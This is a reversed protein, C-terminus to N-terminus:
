DEYDIDIRISGKVKTEKLFNKYIGQDKMAQIDVEKKTYGLTKYIHVPGQFIEEEGTTDFYERAKSKITDRIVKARKEYEDFKVIFDLDDASLIEYTDKKVIETM